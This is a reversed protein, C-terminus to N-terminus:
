GGRRAAAFAALGPLNSAPLRMLGEHSLELSEVAVENGQARLGPGILREPLANSFFWGAVPQPGIGPFTATSTGAAAQLLIFGNKRIPALSSFQVQEYWEWLDAKETIGRRFILNAFRGWRVFKLAHTNRGGERYQEVEMGADIGQVESFRVRTTATVGAKVLGPGGNPASPVGATTPVLFVSFNFAPVPNM